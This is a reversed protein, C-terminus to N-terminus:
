SDLEMDSITGNNKDVLYSGIDQGTADVVRVETEAGIVVNNQIFHM